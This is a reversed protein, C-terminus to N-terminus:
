TRELGASFLSKISAFTSSLDFPEKNPTTKSVKHSRNKKLRFGLHTKWAYLGVQWRLSKEATGSSSHIKQFVIECLKLKRNLSVTKM